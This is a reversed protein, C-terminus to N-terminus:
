QDLILEARFVKGYSLVASASSPGEEDREAFDTDFKTEKTATSWFPEAVEFPQDSRGEELARELLDLACVYRVTARRYTQNSWEIPQSLLLESERVAERTGDTRISAALRLYELEKAAFEARSEVFDLRDDWRAELPREILGLPSAVQSALQPAGVLAIVKSAANRYVPDNAYPMDRDELMLIPDEPPDVVLLNTKDGGGSICIEVAAVLREGAFNPPFQITAKQAVGGGLNGKKTYHSIQTRRTADGSQTGKCEIVHWKGSQDPAVFDPSKQPGRKSTRPTVRAGYRGRMNKIFYLGNCIQSSSLNLTSELWNMSIGMGFDDSLITKQHPDLEAYEKRLLLRQQNLDIAHLYRLQAWYEALSFGSSPVPTTLFGITHLVKLYDLTQTHWGGQVAALGAPPVRGGTWTNNDVKVNFQFNM